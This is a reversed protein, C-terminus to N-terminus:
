KLLHHVLISGSIIIGWCLIGVLFIVLNVPLKM